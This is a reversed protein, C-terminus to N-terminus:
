VVSTSLLILMLICKSPSVPVALTDSRRSLNASSVAGYSIQSRSKTEIRITMGRARAESRLWAAHEDLLATRPAALLYRGLQDLMRRLMSRTKQCGPPGSYIRCLM